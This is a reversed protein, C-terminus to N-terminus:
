EDEDGFDNFNEAIFEALQGDTMEEMADYDPVEEIWISQNNNM